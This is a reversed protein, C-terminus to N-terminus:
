CGAEFAQVFADFDEIDVFGSGDYDTSEDGAEFAQVFANFDDIDLFGSGDFDAHCVADRSFMSAPIPAKALGGGSISAVVGASGTHEFFEVRIRHVGAKLKIKGSKEVMSFYMAVPSKLGDNNVVLTDGIYLKSGDDSNAYLTYEAPQSITIYGEYLAGFDTDRESTYFTTNTSRFNVDNVVDTKYPTLSSFNPLVSPNVLDYFSVNVGPQTSQPNAPDQYGSAADVTISVTATSPGGSTGQITYTFSDAGASPPATYILQDRGGPGTGVSRTITGGRASLAAHSTMNFSGGDLAVDNGLVDIVQPVATLAFVSDGIAVAPAPGVAWQVARGVNIRGWGYTEDEGAPGLDDCSYFLIDQVQKATLSPKASWILSLAGNCVPTAMSTGSWAQYGGGVVTSLINVGPSFVDLGRGYASFGARNDGSDSAGVVIVDPYDFSALNASDNGAAYCYLAGKGKIYAGTTQISSSSVGSYSSSVVSAGHDAAWRAGELIESSNASGNSADTIRCMMLRANQNVGSVGVANNGIAGACGAVHTGHGNVDVVSGGDVEALNATANYGPIRHGALDPHGVDIGTDTFACVISSSGTTFNWAAPSGIVPHHWQGGYLPDNPTAFPFCTWDPVVYEYDGTSLLDAALLSEGAGRPMGSPVRVIFEDVEPYYKATIGALRARAAHDRAALVESRAVRNQQLPRVVLFGSFEMDGPKEVFLAQPPLAAPVGGQAAHALGCAGSIMAATIFCSHVRRQM